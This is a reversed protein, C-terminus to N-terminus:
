GQKFLGEVAGLGVQPGIVGVGQTAHFAQSQAVFGRPLNAQGQRKKLFGEPQALGILTGVM